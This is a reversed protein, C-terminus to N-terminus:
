PSQNVTQLIADSVINAAYWSVIAGLSM